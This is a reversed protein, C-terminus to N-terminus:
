DTRLPNLEPEPPKMQAESDLQLWGGDRVIEFVQINLLVALEEPPPKPIRVPSVKICDVKVMLLVLTVLHEELQSPPKKEM